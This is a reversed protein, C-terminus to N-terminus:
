SGQIFHAEKAAKNKLGDEEPFQFDKQKHAHTRSQAWPCFM